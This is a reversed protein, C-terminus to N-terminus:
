RCKGNVARTSNRRPLIKGARYPDRLQPISGSKGNASGLYRDQITHLLGCIGGPWFRREYHMQINIAGDDASVLM